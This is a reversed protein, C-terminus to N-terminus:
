DYRRIKQQLEAVTDTLHIEDDSHYYIREIQAVSIGCLDVTERLGLGSSPCTLM